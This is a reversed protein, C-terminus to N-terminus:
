VRVNLDIKLRQAVTVEHVIIIIIFCNCANREYLVQFIQKPLKLNRAVTVEDFKFLFVGHM